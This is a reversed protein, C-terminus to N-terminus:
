RWRIVLIEGPLHDLELGDGERTLNVRSLGNGAADVRWAESPRQAPFLFARSRAEAQDALVLEGAWGSPARAWLPVLGGLDALRFPAPVPAELSTSRGPAALSLALQGLNLSGAERRAAHLAFCVRVGHVRLLGGAASVTLPQAGVVAIGRGAADGLTAWRVGAVPVGVPHTLSRAQPLSTRCLEGALHLHCGRHATPHCLELEGPGDWSATVRLGDEHAHLAYSVRLLGQPVQRLVDIRARVPGAEVVTITASGGLPVGAVVPTVAPGALEAFVGDWCLRTLQGLSDFEARVVGNDLTKEDVEWAADPAPEDVPSLQVAELAGLHLSVLLGEDSVQVPAIRGRQDSVAWPKAGDAPLAAVVHREFPLPNWAGLGSGAVSRASLPPLRPTRTRDFAALVQHWSAGAGVGLCSSADELRALEVLALLNTEDLSHGTTNGPPLDGHHFDEVLTDADPPTEAVTVRNGGLGEWRFCAAPQDSTLVTGIGGLRLVDPLSGNLPPLQPTIVTDVQDARLDELWRLLVALPPLTGSPLVPLLPASTM